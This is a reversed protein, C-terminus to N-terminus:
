INFKNFYWMFAFMLGAPKHKTADFVFERSKDLPLYFVEIREGENLNGGGQSVIMEDTVEAYFFTQLSGTSGVGGRFSVVEQLNEEPIDYGCEELIEQKMLGALSMNKDIIGACLEYTVGENFPATIPLSSDDATMTVASGDTLAKKHLNRNVHMYIAPRFQKVLVFSQRTTNFLLACVSDHVTLYDWKREQGNQKFVVRSPQIFRSNICPVVKMDTIELGEMEKKCRPFEFNSHLKRVAKVTVSRLSLILVVKPSRILFSAM